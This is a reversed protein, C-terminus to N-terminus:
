KSPPENSHNENKERLVKKFEEIQDIIEVEPYGNDISINTIIEFEQLEFTPKVEDIITATKEKLKNMKYALKTRHKDLKDIGENAETIEDFIVKRDNLIKALKQNEIKIKRM